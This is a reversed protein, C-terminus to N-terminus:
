RGTNGLKRPTEVFSICYRTSSKQSTAKTSNTSVTPSEIDGKHDFRMRATAKFFVLRFQQFNQGKKGSNQLGAAMGVVRLVSKRRGSSSHVAKEDRALVRWVFTTATM